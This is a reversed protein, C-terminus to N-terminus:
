GTLDSLCCTISEIMITEKLAAGTGLWEIAGISGTWVSLESFESTVSSLTRKLATM